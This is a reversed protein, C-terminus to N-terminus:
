KPWNIVGYKIVPTITIIPATIPNFLILRPPAITRIAIGIAMM